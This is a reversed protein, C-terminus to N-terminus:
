NEMRDATAGVAPATRRQEERARQEQKRIRNRENRERVGNDECIPCEPAIEANRKAGCKQCTVLNRKALVFPTAENKSSAVGTLTINYSTGGTDRQLHALDEGKPLTAYNKQDSM